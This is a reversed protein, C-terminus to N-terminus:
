DIGRLHLALLSVTLVGYSIVAMSNGDRAMM